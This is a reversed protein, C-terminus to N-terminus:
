FFMLKKRRTSIPEAAKQPGYGTSLTASRGVPAWPGASRRFNAIKKKKAVDVASMPRKYAKTSSKGRSTRRQSGFDSSVEASLKRAADIGLVITANRRERLARKVNRPTKDASLATKM